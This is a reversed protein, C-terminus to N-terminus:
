FNLKIWKKSEVAIYFKLQKFHKRVTLHQLNTQRIRRDAAFRCKYGKNAL